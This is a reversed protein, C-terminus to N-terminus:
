DQLSGLQWTGLDGLAIPFYSASALELSGLRAGQQATSAAFVEVKGSGSTRTKILTLSCPYNDPTGFDLVGAAQDAATFVSTRVWVAPYSPPPVDVGSTRGDYLTVEVRASGTGTARLGYPNRQCFAVSGGRFPLAAREEGNRFGRFWTQGNSARWGVYVMPYAGGVSLELRPRGVADIQARMQSCPLMTPHYPMVVHVGRTYGSAATASHLEWHGSGTDCVKLFWLDRNIVQFYGTAADAYSFYTAAHLDASRYGSEKTATHLEVRGSGTSRTQILWLTALDYPAASATVVGLGLSSVVTALVCALVVVARRM